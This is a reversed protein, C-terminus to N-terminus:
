KGSISSSGTAAAGDAARHLQRTALCDVLQKRFAEVKTNAIAAIARWAELQPRDAFSPAGHKALRWLHVAAKTLINLDFFPEKSLDEMLYSKAFRVADAFLIPDFRHRREELYVAAFGAPQQELAAAQAKFQAEHVFYKGVFGESTEGRPSPLYESGILHGVPWRKWGLDAGETLNPSFDCIGLGHIDAWAHVEFDMVGRMGSLLPGALVMRGECIDSTLGARAAISAVLIAGERCMTGADLSQTRSSMPRRLLHSLENGFPHSRLIALCRRVKMSARGLSKFAEDAGTDSPRVLM